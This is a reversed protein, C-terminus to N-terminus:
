NLPAKLRTGPDPSEHKMEKSLARNFTKPIRKNHGKLDPSEHKMQKSLARNFTQPIRKNHGKM